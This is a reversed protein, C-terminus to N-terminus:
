ATEKLRPLTFVAVLGRLLASLAFMPILQSGWSWTEGFITVQTPMYAAIGAALAALAIGVAAARLAAARINTPLTTM